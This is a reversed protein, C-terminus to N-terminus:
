YKENLIKAAVKSSSGINYFNEKIFKDIERDNLNKYDKIYQEPVSTTM